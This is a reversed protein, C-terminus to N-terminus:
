DASGAGPAAGGPKERRKAGGSGPLNKCVYGRYGEPASRQWPASHFVGREQQQYAQLAPDRLRRQVPHLKVGQQLAFDKLAQPSLAKLEYDLVKAAHPRPNADEYLESATEVGDFLKLYYDRAETYAPSALREREELAYDNATFGEPEVPLGNYAADIQRTLIGFSSGDYIIHHIDSFLLKEAPSVIIAFRYLLDRELDFVKVYDRVDFRETWLTPIEPAKEDERLYKYAEGNEDLAFGTRLVPHAAVVKAIAAKLRNLDVNEPLKITVPNNYATNRATMQEIYIGYETKSLPCRNM